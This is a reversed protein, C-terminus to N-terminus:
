LDMLWSIRWNWISEVHRNNPSELGIISIKFLSLYLLWFLISKDCRHSSISCSCGISKQYWDWWFWCLCSFWLAKWGGLTFLLHYGLDHLMCSRILFSKIPFLVSLLWFIYCGSLLYCCCCLEIFSVYYYWM